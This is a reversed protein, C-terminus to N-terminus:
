SFGILPINPSSVGLVKFLQGMHQASILRYSALAAQPVHLLQATRQEIGLSKLFHAQSVLPAVHIGKQHFKQELHDFNVHFTLDSTGPSSLPSCKQHQNLAQFTDGYWPSTKEGYDIILCAGTNRLLHASIQDVIRDGEQPTETISGEKPPIVLATETPALTWTLEHDKIMILREFWQGQYTQFQKHPLADFFENAIFACPLDPITILDKHWAPRSYPHIKQRQIEKLLNSTEVLHISLAKAFDPVLQSVRLLDAMLTGRGPGLEILAFESPSGLKQWVDICWLGILEGFIQSIEPSTIYDADQGIPIHHAYYGQKPHYMALRFYEDVGLSGKEQITNLIVTNVM